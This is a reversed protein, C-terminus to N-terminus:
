ERLIAKPDVQSAQRAPFYCAVLAMLALLASVVTLLPIETPSLVSLFGSLFRALGVSAAMGILLGAGALLIGHWLVMRLVNRPQAGLAMRVSIEHLREGVTQAMIGYVGMMALVLAIVGLIAMFVAVYGLGFVSDAIVRDLTKMQFVPVDLDIDAVRNRVADHLSTTDISSRLVVYSASSIFQSYPLYITMEPGPDTWDYQVDDAIGIVTRWPNDASVHGLALHKGLPSEQPWFHRALNRSIIVVKPSDPSDLGSFHRGEFLAIDLTQFYSTSVSQLIASPDGSEPAPRGEVSFSGSEANNAFPVSTVLTASKVGPLTELNQLLRDYFATLNQRSRYQPRDLNVRMTLLAQPDSHRHLRSLTWFSKALIAVGALLVVSLTIQTIVFANRLYRRPKGSSVAHGEQLAKNFDARWCSFAPTTGSIVGAFLGLCVSFCYATADLKIHSWGAIYSTMDRTTHSILMKVAVAAFGLSMVGGALGLLVSETMLQRVLRWNSAGIAMRISIERRRATSLVLQLNAVNVCVIFLVIGVAGILLFILQRTLSGNVFERLPMVRVGWGRNTSPYAQALRYAIGELEARAQSLSTESKLRGFVVLSHAKRDNSRQPDMTLPTWLEATLPFDFDKAMVGLVRYTNGNLRIVSGVTQPSSGFRREWLGHSLIVVQDHGAEEEEPLFTRGMTPEVGLVRFFNASVRFGQVREPAPNGTLSMNEWAFVAMEDLFTVQKRWDFYNAPAVSNWYDTRQPAWELLMVLRDLRPFSVPQLLFARAVSFIATNVGIGFAMTLIVIITFTPRKIFLRAGFLIDQRLAHLM